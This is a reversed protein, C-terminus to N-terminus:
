KLKEIETLIEMHDKTRLSGASFYLNLDFDSADRREFRFPIPRLSRLTEAPDPALIWGGPLFKAGPGGSTTIKEGILTGISGLSRLVPLADDNTRVIVNSEYMRDIQNTKYLDAKIDQKLWGVLDEFFADLVDTDSQSEILIGDNYVNLRNIGIGDFSGQQFEQKEAIVEDFTEPYSLFGYRNALEELAIPIDIQGSLKTVNTLVILKSLSIQVLEM